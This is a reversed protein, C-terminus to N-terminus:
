RIWITNHTQMKSPMCLFSTCTWRHRDSVSVCIFTLWIDVILVLSEVQHFNLCIEFCSSLFTQFCGSIKWDSGNRDFSHTHSQLAMQIIQFPSLSVSWTKSAFARMKLSRENSIDHWFQRKEVAHWRMWCCSKKARYMPTWTVCGRLNGHRMPATSSQPAIFSRVSM